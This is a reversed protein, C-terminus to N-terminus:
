AGSTVPDQALWDIELDPDLRRLERAIAVDRQAYGWARDTQSSLPRPSARPRTSAGNPRAAHSPRGFADESFDRLALNSGPGGQSAHPQPRRGRVVELTGGSLLRAGAAVAAGPPSATSRIWRDGHVVLVPCDMNQAWGGRLTPRDRHVRAMPRPAILATRPRHRAAGIGLATRSRGQDLAAGPPALALIFWDRSSPTTRGGLPGRELTGGVLPLVLCPDSFHFASRCRPNLLLSWHSVTYPFLVTGIFSLRRGGARPALRGAPAPISQASPPPSVM